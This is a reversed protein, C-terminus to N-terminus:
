AIDCILVCFTHSMFMYQLSFWLLDYSLPLRKECSINSFSILWIIYKSTNVIAAHNFRMLNQFHNSEPVELKCWKLIFDNSKKHEVSM